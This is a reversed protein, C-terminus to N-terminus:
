KRVHGSMNLAAALVGYEFGLTFSPDDWHQIAVSGRMEVPVTDRSICRGAQTESILHAVRADLEAIRARLCDTCSEPDVCECIRSSM